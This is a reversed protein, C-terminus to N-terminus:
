TPTTPPQRPPPFHSSSSHSSSSLYFTLRNHVALGQTLRHSLQLLPASSHAAVVPSLSHHHSSSSSLSLFPSSSRSPPLPVAPPCALRSSHRSSARPRDQSSRGLKHISAPAGAQSPVSALRAGGAGVPRGSEATSGGGQGATERVGIYRQLPRPQTPTSRLSSPSNATSALAPPLQSKLPTSTSRSLESPLLM